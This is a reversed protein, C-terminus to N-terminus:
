RHLDESTTMDSLSNVWNYDATTCKRKTTYEARNVQEDNRM